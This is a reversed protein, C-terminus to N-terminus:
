CIRGFIIGPDKVSGPHRAYGVFGRCKEILLAQQGGTIGKGIEAAGDLGDAGTAPGRNGDLADERESLVESALSYTGDPVRGYVYREFLGLIEPRRIREWDEAGAVASGDPNVLPDPLEYAPVKSEDYNPEWPKQQHCASVIWVFCTITIIRIM